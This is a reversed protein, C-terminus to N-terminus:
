RDVILDAKLDQDSSPHHDYVIIKPFDQTERKVKVFELLPQIHKLRSEKRADAIVLEKVSNMWDKGFANSIDKIKPFRNPKFVQM